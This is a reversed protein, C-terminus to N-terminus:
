YVYAMAGVDFMNDRIWTAANLTNDDTTETFGEFYDPTELGCFGAAGFSTVGYQVWQGYENQMILPGGSDGSCVAGTVGTVCVVSDTHSPGFIAECEEDSTTKVVAEKLEPHSTGNIHDKGWGTITMESGTTPRVSGPEPLCVPWAKGPSLTIPIQTIILAIDNYTNNDNHYDSPAIISEVPWSGVCPNGNNFANLHCETFLLVKSTDAVIAEADDDWLCHAATLITRSNIITGGCSSYASHTDNSKDQLVHTMWPWENPEAEQGGAIKPNGNPAYGCLQSIDKPTSTETPLTPPETPFTDATSPPTTTTKPVMNEQIWTAVKLTNDDTTECYGEFLDEDRNIENDIGCYGSPGFSTAGYQTWQGFENKMLLPGGSDGSCTAGTLGTVCQISDSRTGYQSECAEDAVTIVAAEKLVPNQTGNQEPKGWGTVVMETGIPPRESGPEPLCVPWAKDQSLDITDTTIILAIDNHKTPSPNVYDSPIIINEAAYTKCTNSGGYVQHCETHVHLRSPDAVTNTGLEKDWVCHAATLITRSSIITGGCYKFSSSDPISKTVYTMWPWENPATAQGGWIKPNANPAYGCLQSFDTPPTSTEPTTAPITTPYTTLHNTVTMKCRFWYGYKRRKNKFVIRANQFHM